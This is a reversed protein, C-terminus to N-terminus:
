LQLLECMKKASEKKANKKNSGKGLTQNDMIKCTIKFINENESMNKNDPLLIYEPNNINKKQCYEQLKGIYNIQENLNINIIFPSNSLEPSLEPSIEPSINNESNYINNENYSILEIDSYEPNNINISTNSNNSSVSNSKLRNVNSQQKIKNKISSCLQSFIKKGIVYSMYADNAAYKIQSVTLEHTWDYDHYINKNISDDGTLIKYLEHLNPNQFGLLLGINKMEYQGCIYGISYNTSLILLDNEIGVGTKIWSSNQLIEIMKDPINVMQPLDIIICLTDCYLQLKCIVINNYPIINQHTKIYNEYIETSQNSSIMECDLGILRIINNNDDNYISKIALENYIKNFTYNSNIINVPTTQEM